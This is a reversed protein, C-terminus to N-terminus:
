RTVVRLATTVTDGASITVHTAGSVLADLLDPDQWEGPSLSTVAAAYYDGPPLKRVNFAGDRETRSSVALFRSTEGWRDRDTSFIVVTASPVGRGRTDLAHGTVESVRDTLVVEVDDISQDATGFLLPTDTVDRGNLRVAQLMWGRPAETFRLVRPGSVGALEFTGDPQIRASAPSGLNQPTRDMDVPVAQLNLASYLEPYPDGEFTLHGKLTSGRVMRLILGTVDSGNVTVFQVVSEGEAYADTKGKSAQIVYEGPAVNPFEFRGDPYIRAGVAEAALAGSRRSPTLILGGGVPNGAADVITGAIRATLARALAFRLDTVDQSGDVTIRQADAPNPTGPFYSTTYGPLDAM